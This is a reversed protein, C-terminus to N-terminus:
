TESKLNKTEPFCANYLWRAIMYTILGSFIVDSLFHGGMAMRAFGVALGFGTAFAAMAWKRRGHMLLAFSYFYFGMASHGSVFACNRECQDAIILAPTFEKDGGFAEIQSPRARDWQDKFIGHVVAGPGLAMSLILFLFTRRTIGLVASKRILSVAFGLLLGTALIRTTWPIVDYLFRVAPHHKLFFGEQPNYLLAATNLDLEPWGLFLISSAIFLVWFLLPLRFIATLPPMSNKLNLPDM